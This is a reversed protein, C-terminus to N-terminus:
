SGFLYYLSEHIRIVLTFEFHLSSIFIHVSENCNSHNQPIQKGSWCYSSYEPGVCGLQCSSLSTNRRKSNWATSCLGLYGIFVVASWLFCIKPSRKGFHFKFQYILLVFLNKTVQKRIVFSNLRQFKTLVFRLFFIALIRYVLWYAGFYLAIRFIFLLRNSKSPSTQIMTASKNLVEFKSQFTQFTWTKHV